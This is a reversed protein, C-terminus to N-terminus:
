DDTVLLSVPQETPSPQSPELSPEIAIATRFDAAALETQGQAHFVRSRGALAEACRPDRELVKAYDALAETFNGQSAYADARRLLISLRDPELEIARTFESIAASTQGARLLAAGLEIRGDAKESELSPDLRMAERLDAAADDLKGLKALAIGRSLRCLGQEPAELRIAETFDAVAGAYDNMKLRVGARDRVPISLGPNQALYADIQAILTDFYQRRAESQDKAATVQRQKQDAQWRGPEGFLDAVTQAGAAPGHSDEQHRSKGPRLRELLRIREVPSPHTDEESTPADWLKAVDGAVLRRIDARLYYNEPLPGIAASSSPVLHSSATADQVPDSQEGPDAGAMAERYRVSVDRRIVHRLGEEFAEKGYVGAAVRDANIEQLRSAGHTIRRFLLHYLRVFQWGINWWQANGQQYMAVAFQSMTANVRMAVDGGATDRHLFHGYEHALVARFPDLGFGEIVEQGLILSRKARDRIKERWGGREFVALETGPSLYILDVPRTGVKAAVERALEWLRPAESENLIVGPDEHNFRVFLSKISSWIMMLMALGFGLVIVLLKAPIRPLLFVAYLLALVSAIALLAIFPLSVYYYLGALNIVFRYIRRLARDRSTIAANPDVTRASRLTAFSLGKGFVFLLFLGVVWGVALFVALYVYRWTSARSHVGGALMRSVTEAPLGLEGARHLENESTVWEGDRAARIANYYHSEMAGPFREQLRAVAARFEADRRLELAAMAVLTLKDKDSAQEYGLLKARELARNWYPQSLPSTGGGRLEPTPDLQQAVLTLEEPSPDPGLAESIVRKGETQKGSLVLAAGHLLRALMWDPAKEVTQALYASAGPWDRKRAAGVGREFLQVAQEPPSTQIGSPQGASRTAPQGLRAQALVRLSFPALVLLAAWFVIAQWRYTKCLRIAMEHTGGFFSALGALKWAMVTSDAYRFVPRGELLTSLWEVMATSGM